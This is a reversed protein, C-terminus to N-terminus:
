RPGELRVVTDRGSDTVWVSGDGLTVDTPTGVFTKSPGMRSLDELNLRELEAEIGDTDSVVWLSGEGVALEPNVGDVAARASAEGTAPDIQVVTGDAEAVYVASSTSAMDTKPADGAPVRLAEQQTDFDWRVLTAGREVLAWISGATISVEIPTDYLVRRAEEGTAADIAILAGFDHSVAWVTGEPGVDLDIHVGQSGIPFPSGIFKSTRADIRKITGDDSDSYWVAGPTLAVDTPEGGVDIVGTSRNTAANVRTITGQRSAVWVVNRGVSVGVPEEGVAIYEGAPAPVAPGREKREFLERGQTAAIAIVGSLVGATAVLATYRTVRRRRLRRRFEAHAAVAREARADRLASSVTKLSEGLRRDLDNM